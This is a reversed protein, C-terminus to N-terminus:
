NTRYIYFGESENEEGDYGSLFHGRGDCSIADEVFHDFDYIMCKVAKNMSECGEVFKMWAKEDIENIAESHSNLFSKNFAWCSESIYEKAKEDAEEDTLVLYEERGSKFENESLETLEDTECELYKALAELKSVEKKAETKTNM